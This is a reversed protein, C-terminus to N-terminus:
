EKLKMLVLEQSDHNSKSNDFTPIGHINQKGPWPFEALREAAARM